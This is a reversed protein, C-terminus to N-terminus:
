FAVSPWYNDVVSNTSLSYKRAARVGSMNPGSLTMGREAIIELVRNDLCLICTVKPKGGVLAAPDGHEYRPDDM